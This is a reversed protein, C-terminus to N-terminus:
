YKERYPDVRMSNLKDVLANGQLPTSAPSDEKDSQISPVAKIQPSIPAIYPYIPEIAPTIPTYVNPAYTQPPPFSAPSSIINNEVYNAFPTSTAEAIEEYIPKHPVKIKHSLKEDEINYLSALQPKVASFIKENILLAIQLADEKELNYEEMIFPIFEGPRMIGALVRVTARLLESRWTYPINFNDCIEDIITIIEDGEIIAKLEVPLTGLKEVVTPM